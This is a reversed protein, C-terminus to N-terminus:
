DNPQEKDDSTLAVLRQLKYSNMERGANIAQELLDLEILRAERAAKERETRLLAAYQQMLVKPAYKTKSLLPNANMFRSFMRACETELEDTAPSPQVTEAKKQASSTDTQVIEATKQANDTQEGKADVRRTGFCTPCRTTTWAAEFIRMEGSGGCTPCPKTPNMHPNSQSM